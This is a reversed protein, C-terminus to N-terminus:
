LASGQSRAAAEVAQAPIDYRRTAIVERKAHDLHKVPNRIILPRPDPNQLPNWVVHLWFSIAEIPLYVEILRRDDTM